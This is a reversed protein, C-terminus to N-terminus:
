KLNKVAQLKNKGLKLLRDNKMKVNMKIKNRTLYFLSFINIFFSFTPRNELSFQIKTLLL